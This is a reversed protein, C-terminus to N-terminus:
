NAVFRDAGDGGTLRRVRGRAELWHLHAVAEGTAIGLDNEGIPKRFLTAFSEYATRPEACFAALKELKDAHDAALQALRVHLGTFPENHAPLVLLAPDLARLREISALWDGLPDAYPETPYVSVNSTIRPLVQDGSIMVDDAVLCAHEPSHGNGMVIRFDRNGIRTTDGDRLRRFGLPLTAIVKSFSGWSKARMAAIAEPPWGARVSFAVAEEPPAEATDLCLMRALLFEGRTIELDVGFRRCLWGALGIHDPHYHTVIVRKVPKAAMAGAFLGEWYGRTRPMNVGTDVIAWGGTPGDGDDLAWLNIHDLGFPLPMRLWFIGAAVEILEGHDPVRTGFPYRLGRREHPTAEGAASDVLSVDSM